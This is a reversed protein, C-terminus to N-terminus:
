ASHSFNLTWQLLKTKDFLSFVIESNNIMTTVSLKDNNFFFKWSVLRKNEIKAQVTCLWRLMVWFKKIIITPLKSHALFKAVGNMCIYFTTANITLYPLLVNICPDLKTIQCKSMYTKHPIFSPVEVLETICM